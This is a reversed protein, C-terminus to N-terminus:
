TSTRLITGAVTVDTTSDVNGTTRNWWDSHNEASGGLNAWMRHPLQLGWVPTQVAVSPASVSFNAFRGKGPMDGSSAFGIFGPRKTLTALDLRSGDRQVVGHELPTVPSGDVWIRLLGGGGPTESCRVVHPPESVSNDSHWLGPLASVGSLLEQHITRRVGDASLRSVVVWFGNARVQQGGGPFDIVFLDAASRCGCDTLPVM